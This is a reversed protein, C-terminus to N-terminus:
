TREGSEATSTESNSTCRLTDNILGHIFGALTGATFGYVHGLVDTNDAPLGSGTMGLVVVGAIIPALMRLWPLHLRHKIMWSFGLGSLIGLAAFTATSAGISSYPEPWVTLSTALNALTGCSLIYLWGKLPGISRCVLTAFCLAALLNGLLHSGSAHLFLATFPRWWEHHEILRISSSAGMEVLSPYDQQALLVVTLTMAWLFFLGWGAPHVFPDADVKPTPDHTSCEEDYADLEGRIEPAHPAEVHLTFDPADPSPFVWCPQGMALIVLAHELALSQDSYSGICTLEDPDVDTYLDDM